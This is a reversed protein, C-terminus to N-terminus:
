STQRSSIGSLTSSLGELRVALCDARSLPYPHPPNVTPLKKGISITCIKVETRTTRQMLSTTLLACQRPMLYSPSMGPPPLAKPKELDKIRQLEAEAREERRKQEIAEQEAKRANVIRDVNFGRRKLDRLSTQLLTMFLLTDHIRQRNLMIGTLAAAVEYYDLDNLNSSIRLLLTGKEVTAAASAPSTKM